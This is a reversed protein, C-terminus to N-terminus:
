TCRSGDATSQNGGRPAFADGARGSQSGILTAGTLSVEGPVSGNDTTKTANVNQENSHDQVSGSANNM